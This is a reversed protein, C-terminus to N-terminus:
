STIHINSYFTHTSGINFERFQIEVSNTISNINDVMVLLTNIKAVACVGNQMVQKYINWKQICGAQEVFAYKSNQSSFQNTVCFCADASPVPM